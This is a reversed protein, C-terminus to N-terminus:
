EADDDASAASTIPPHNVVVIRPVHGEPWCRRGVPVPDVGGGSFPNCRLIRWTTLMSGRLLGHVTVAELGYASCSPYFACVNGYLPSILRRWARIFWVFPAGPIQRVWGWHHHEDPLTDGAEHLEQISASRGPTEDVPVYFAQHTVWRQPATASEPERSM